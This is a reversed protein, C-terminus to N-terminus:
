EFIYITKGNSVTQKVHVRIPLIGRDKLTHMLKKISENGTCVKRKGFGDCEVLIFMKNEGNRTTCNDIFDYLAIERGVLAGMGIFPVEFYRVGNVEKENGIQLDEFDSLKKMDGFGEHMTRFGTIKRWLTLGNAHQLWGKYAALISRKRDPDETKIKRKFNYKIDDRIFTYDLYFKYGIFDMPHENDLRQIGINEHIPQELKYKAIEKLKNIAAGVDEASFGMILVNDCYRFIKVGKMAALERDVDNFYFNMIPQIPYLGIGLGRTGDSKELGNHNGLAWIVDHLLWRIGDNDFEKCLRDYVKQRVLYHYCKIFDIEAWFIPKNRNERIFRKIHKQLYHIGRGKISAASEYYYSKELTPLIVQMLAHHAVHYYYHVKSLVRRKHECWREEMVPTMTKFVGSKLENHLKRINGERDRDFKNVGYTRSKGLRAARDARRINEIDYVDEITLHKNKGKIREM